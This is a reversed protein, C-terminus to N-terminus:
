ARPPPLRREGAWASGGTASASARTGLSSLLTEALRADVSAVAREYLRIGAEWDETTGDSSVRTGLRGDPDLALAAVLVATVVDDYPYCFTRVHSPTASRDVYLDDKGGGFAILGSTIIPCPEQRGDLWPGDLREGTEAEWLSAVRETADRLGPTAVVVFRHGYGGAM